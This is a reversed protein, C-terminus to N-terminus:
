LDKRWASEHAIPEFGLAENTDLMHRNEEANFTIVAPHGPAVVILHVLNALKLHMGLRHGRHEKLVLTAYQDVARNSQRPVSFVTYGVLTGTQLHEAAATLRRRPNLTANREDAEIIREVTWVDEPEELGASPADTSMRTALVAQDARWREPTPGEWLRVAYEPGTVRQAEALRAHLDPVPLPMRSVREVQEFRYDRELLFRAERSGTSVSGFGTPSVVRDSGVDPLSAYVIAKAKRDDRALAEVADALARGIGAGRHEPLVEVVLWATDAEEGTQTEYLARAVIRGDVRAALMRIPQNPNRFHPLEEAPEYALDPTGYALEEVSNGVGIAEAFPLARPDDMSEPTELEEISFGAM